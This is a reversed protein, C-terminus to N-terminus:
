PSIKDKYEKAIEQLTELRWGHIKFMGLYHGDKTIESGEIPIPCQLVIDIAKLLNEM